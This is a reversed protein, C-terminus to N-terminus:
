THSVGLYDLYRETLAVALGLKEKNNWFFISYVEM